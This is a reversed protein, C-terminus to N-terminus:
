REKLIIVNTTINIQILVGFKCENQVAAYIEHYLM